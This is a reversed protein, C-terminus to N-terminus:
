VAAVTARVMKTYEAPQERDTMIEFTLGGEECWRRMDAEPYWWDKIRMRRAKDGVNFIFLFQGDPKLVRSMSKFATRIDPEPMHNIVSLAWAFDVSDDEIERLLCDTVKFARYQDKTIGHSRALRRGMDIREESIDVGIYQGEALYQIVPVGTRMVGCGYDLMTHNPKLGHKIMYQADQRGGELYAESLPRNASGSKQFGDMRDAYFDIWTRGTLRYKILYSLWELPLMWFRYRVSNYNGRLPRAIFERLTIQESM